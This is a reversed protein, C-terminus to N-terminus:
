KDKTKNVAFSKVFFLCGAALDIPIWINKDILYIPILPNFLVAVIGFIISWLNIGNEFDRIFILISTITVVIRLLTYYGIPLDAIALFLLASCIFLLTKL